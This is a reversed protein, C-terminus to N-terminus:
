YSLKREMFLIKNLVIDLIDVIQYYKCSPLIQVIKGFSRSYELTKQEKIFMRKELIDRCNM